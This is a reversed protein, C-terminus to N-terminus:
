SLHPHDSGELHLEAPNPLGNRRGNQLRRAFEVFGLWRPKAFEERHSSDTGFREKIAQYTTSYDDNEDIVDELPEQLYPPYDEPKNEVGPMDSLEGMEYLKSDVNVVDLYTGAEIDPIRGFRDVPGVAGQQDYYEQHKRFLSGFINVGLDSLYAGYYGSRPCVLPIYFEECLSNLEEIFDMLQNELGRDWISDYGYVTM